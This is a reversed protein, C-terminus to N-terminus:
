THIASIQGTTKNITVNFLENMPDNIRNLALSM